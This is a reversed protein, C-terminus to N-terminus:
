TALMSKVVDVLEHAHYPKGLFQDPKCTSGFYVEPGVTGSLLLIKQQPELKRCAEILAMGNMQHMAYDTIILAPRPQAVTFAEVALAPDRFTKVEYGLPELIIAALELLMAEDDIVYVSTKAGARFGFRSSSAQGAETQGPM